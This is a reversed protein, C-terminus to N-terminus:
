AEPVAQTLSDVQELLKQVRAKVSEREKELRVVREQLTRHVKDHDELRRRLHAIEKLLEEKGKRASQLLDITRFIKEELRLLHELGEETAKGENM